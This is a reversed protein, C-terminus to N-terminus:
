RMTGTTPPIISMGPGYIPLQYAAPQAYYPTPQYEPPPLGGPIQNYRALDEMQYFYPQAGWYFQQQYPQQTQYAPRVAGLVFGPNVGPYPLPELFLPNVNPPTIPGYRPGTPPPTVPPVYPPVYPM